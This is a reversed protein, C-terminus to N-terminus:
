SKLRKQMPWCLCPKEKIVSVNRGERERKEKKKGTPMEARIPQRLATHRDNFILTRRTELTQWPQWIPGRAQSAMSIHRAKSHLFGRVPKLLQKQKSQMKGGVLLFDHLRAADSGSLIWAHLLVASVCVPDTNYDCTVTYEEENTM